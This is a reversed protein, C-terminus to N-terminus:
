EQEGGKVPLPHLFLDAGTPDFRRRDEDTAWGREKMQRIQKEVEAIDATRISLIGGEKWIVLSGKELRRAYRGINGRLNEAVSPRPGPLERPITFGTGYSKSKWFLEFGIGGMRISDLLSSARFMEGARALMSDYAVGEVLLRHMEDAVGAQLRYELSDTRSPIRTRTLPERPEREMKPIFQVGNVWATDREIVFVYPPEMRNGYLYLIGKDAVAVTEPVAVASSVSDALANEVAEGLLPEGWCTAVWGVLLAGPSLVRLLRM